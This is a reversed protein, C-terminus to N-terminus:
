EKDLNDANKKIINALDKTNGVFVAKDINVDSKIRKANSLSIKNHKDVMNQSKIKDTIGTMTFIKEDIEIMKSSADSVSKILGAMVEYARSAERVNAVQPLINTKMTELAELGHEMIKTMNQRSEYYNTELNNMMREQNKQIIIGERKMIELAEKEDAEEMIEVLASNKEPENSRLLSDKLEGEPVVKNILKQEEVQEEIQDENDTDDKPEIEFFEMMKKDFNKDIVSM